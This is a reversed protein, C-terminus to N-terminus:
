NDRSQLENVLRYLPSEQLHQILPPEEADIQIRSIYEKLLEQAKLDAEAIDGAEDSSSLAAPMEYTKPVQDAIEFIVSTDEFIVKGSLM